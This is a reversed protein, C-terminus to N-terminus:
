RNGERSQCEPAPSYILYVGPLVTVIISLLLYLFILGIAVDLMPNPLM